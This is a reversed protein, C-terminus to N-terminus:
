GVKKISIDDFYVDTDKGTFALALRYDTRTDTTFTLTHQTWDADVDTFQKDFVDNTLGEWLTNNAVDTVRISGYGLNGKSYFSLEYETDAELTIDQYIARNALSDGTGNTYYLSCYGSYEEDSSLIAPVSAWGGYLTKTWGNLGDEFTGNVVLGTDPVPIDSKETVEEISFDDFNAAAYHDADDFFFYLVLVYESCANTKFTYNVKTWETTDYDSQDYHVVNIDDTVNAANYSIWSRM